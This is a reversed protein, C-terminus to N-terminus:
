VKNLNYMERNYRRMSGGGEQSGYASAQTKDLSPLSIGLTMIRTKPCLDRSFRNLSGLADYERIASGSICFVATARDYNASRWELSPLLGLHSM